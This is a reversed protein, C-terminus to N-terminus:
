EGHPLAHDPNTCCEFDDFHPQVLRKAPGVPVLPPDVLDGFGLMMDHDNAGPEAPEFEGARQM